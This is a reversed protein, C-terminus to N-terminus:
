ESEQKLFLRDDGFPDWEILWLNGEEDKAFAFSGGPLHKGYVKRYERQVEARMRLWEEGPKGYQELKPVLAYPVEIWRM